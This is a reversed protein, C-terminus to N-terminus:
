GELGNRLNLQAKLVYLRKVRAYLERVDSLLSRLDYALETAKASVIAYAKM